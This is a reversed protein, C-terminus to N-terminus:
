RDSQMTFRQMAGASERGFRKQMRRVFPYGLKALAHRPRPYAVVDYFVNDDRTDWEVLFREEGM